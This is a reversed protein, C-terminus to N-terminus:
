RIKDISKVLKRRENKVGYFCNELGFERENNIIEGPFLYLADQQPVSSTIFNLSQKKKEHVQQLKWLRYSQQQILRLSAETGGGWPAGLLPQNCVFRQLIVSGVAHHSVYTFCKILRKPFLVFTSSSM